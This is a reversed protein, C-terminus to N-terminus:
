GALSCMLNTLKSTMFVHRYAQKWLYHCRQEVLDFWQTQPHVNMYSVQCSTGKCSFMNSNNNSWRLFGYMAPLGHFIGHQSHWPWMSKGVANFCFRCTCDLCQSYGRGSEGLLKLFVNGTLLAPWKNFLYYPCFSQHFHDLVADCRAWKVHDGYTPCVLIAGAIHPYSKPLEAIKILFQTAYSLWFLHYRTNILCAM